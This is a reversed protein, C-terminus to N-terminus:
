KAFAGQFEGPLTEFSAEIVDLGQVLEMSSDRWPNQEDASQADQQVTGPVQPRATTAGPERILLKSIRM